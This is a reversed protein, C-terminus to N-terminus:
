LAGIPFVIVKNGQIQYSFGQEKLMDKLVENWPKGGNWSVLAGADVGKMYSPSYNSPIVQSLALGLPLDAGFGVANTYPAELMEGEVTAPPFAGMAGSMPTLGVNAVMQNPPAQVGTNMGSGLPLPHLMDASEVLAQEVISGQPRMTVMKKAQLPYPDIVLGRKKTPMMTTNTKEMTVAPMPAEYSPTVPDPMMPIIQQPATQAAPKSQSPAIWEFGAWAQGQYITVSMLSTLGLVAIIHHRM